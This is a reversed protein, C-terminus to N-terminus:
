HPPGYSQSTRLCARGSLAVYAFTKGFAAKRKAFFNSGLKQHGFFLCGDKKGAFKQPNTLLGQAKYFIHFKQWCFLYAHPCLWMFNNVLENDDTRELIYKTLTCCTTEQLLYFYMCTFVHELVGRLM